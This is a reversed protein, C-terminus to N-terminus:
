SCLTASGGAGVESRKPSASRRGGGRLLESWLRADYRPESSVVAEWESTAHSGLFATLGDRLERQRQTPSLDMM